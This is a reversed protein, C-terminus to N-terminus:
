IFNKDNKPKVYSLAQNSDRNYGVTPDIITNFVSVVLLGLLYPNSSAQQILDGVTACNTLDKFSLGVYALIPTLVALVLQAIFVPNKLRIRWNIKLIDRRILYCL